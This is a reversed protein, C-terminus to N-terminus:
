VAGKKRKEGKSRKDNSSFLKGIEKEMLNIKIRASDVQKNTWREPAAWYNSKLYCRQALDRNFPRATTAVKAWLDSLKEEKKSDRTYPIRGLYRLTERLAKSAIRLFESTEQKRVSRQKSYEEYIYKGLDIVEKLVSHAGFIDKIDEAM